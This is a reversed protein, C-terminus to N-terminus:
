INWNCECLSYFDYGRKFAVECFERLTIRSVENETSYNSPKTFVSYEDLRSDYWCPIDDATQNYNRKAFDNWFSYIKEM